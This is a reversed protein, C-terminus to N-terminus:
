SQTQYPHAHVLFDPEPLPPEEVSGQLLGFLESNFQQTQIGRKKPQLFGCSPSFPPQGPFTLHSFVFFFPSLYSLTSM